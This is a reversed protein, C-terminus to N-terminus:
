SLMRITLQKSQSLLLSERIDIGFIEAEVAINNVLGVITDLRVIQTDIIRGLIANPDDVTEIPKPTFKRKYTNEPVVVEEKKSMRDPSVYSNQEISRNIEENLLESESNDIIIVLDVSYGIDKLDNIIKGKYSNIKQEEVPNGVYITILNNDYEIKNDLFMSLMPSEESYINLLYKFYDIIHDNNINSCNFHVSINKYNKFAEKLCAIFMEYVDPDLTNENEIFFCYSDRDKNGVIKTLKAHEFYKYYEHNLHIKELLLQLKSDM